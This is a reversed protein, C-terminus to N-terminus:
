AAKAKRPRAPRVIEAEVVPPRAELARVLRAIQDALLLGIGAIVLALGGIGGSILEQNQVWLQSTNGAHYWAFGIAVFGIGAVIAGVTTVPRLKKETMAIEKLMGNLGYRYKTLTVILGVPAGYALLADANPLFLRGGELVAAAAAVGAVFGPGALAVVILYTFSRGPPFAAPTLRQVWMATLGGSFGAYAGAIGYAALRYRATPVGFAAAADPQAKVWLLARGVKSRHLLWAVVVALAVLSALVVYLARASSFTLPGLTPVAVQAGAGSGILWDTTFFFRDIAVGAALTVLAVQLGRARIAPLGVVLGTAAGILLALPLLTIPSIGHDGSLKAVAFAPLGVLAAHALSLEGAWNVLVHLGIAGVFLIAVLGLKYISAESSLLPLTCAALAAGLAAIRRLTM